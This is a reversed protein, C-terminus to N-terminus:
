TRAAQEPLVVQKGVALPADLYIRTLRM